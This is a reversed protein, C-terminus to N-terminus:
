HVRSGTAQFLGEAEVSTLIIPGNNCNIVLV